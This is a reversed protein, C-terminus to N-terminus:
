LLTFGAIIGVSYEHLDYPRHPTVTLEAGVELCGWGNYSSQALVAVSYNLRQFLDTVQNYETFDQLMQNTTKLPLDAFKIMFLSDIEIDNHRGKITTKHIYGDVKKVDVFAGGVLHVRAAGSGRNLLLSGQFKLVLSMTGGGKM